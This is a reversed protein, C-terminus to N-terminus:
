AIMVEVINLSKLINAIMMLVHNGGLLLLLTPVLEIDQILVFDLVRAGTELTVGNVMWQAHGRSVIVPSKTKVLVTKEVM